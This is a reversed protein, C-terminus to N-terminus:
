FTIVISEAFADGLFKEYDSLPNLNTFGSFTKVLGITIKM